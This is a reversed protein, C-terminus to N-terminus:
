SVYAMEDMGAWSVPTERRVYGDGVRVLVGIRLCGFCPFTVVGFRTLM